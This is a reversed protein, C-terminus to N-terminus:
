KRVEKPRSLGDAQAQRTHGRLARAAAFPPQPASANCGSVRGAWFAADQGGGAGDPV